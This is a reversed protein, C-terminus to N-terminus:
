FHCKKHTKIKHSKMVRPRAHPPPSFTVKRYNQVDGHSHWAATFTTKAASLSIAGHTSRSRQFRVPPPISPLQQPKVNTTLQTKTFLVFRHVNYLENFISRCHAEGFRKVFPHLFVFFSVVFFPARASVPSVAKWEFYKYHEEIARCQVALCLKQQDSTTFCAFFLRFLGYGADCGSNKTSRYRWRTGDHSKTEQQTWGEEYRRSAHTKDCENQCHPKLASKAHASTHYMRFATSFTQGRM